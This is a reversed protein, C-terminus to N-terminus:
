WAKGSDPLKAMIQQLRKLARVYRLSAAGQNIGLVEAVEQNSLDEFNRMALVERDIEEMEQLARQVADVAEARQIAQSPSTLNGALAHAMSTATSNGSVLNLSQDRGADRAKTGLHRRHVDCLTQMAVLRLWVYASADEPTAAFHSLRKQADLFVEQLLDDVDVRSAVRPDLRFFLMQRLRAECVALLEGLAAEEGARLRAILEASIGDELM